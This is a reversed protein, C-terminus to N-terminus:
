KKIFIDHIKGSTATQLHKEFYTNKFTQSYNCSFAQTPTEIKNFLSELVPAKSHVNCYNKLVQEKYFM